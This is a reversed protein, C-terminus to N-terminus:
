YFFQYPLSRCAAAKPAPTILRVFCPLSAPSSFNSSRGRCNGRGAFLRPVRGWTEREKRSTPFRPSFSAYASDVPRCAFALARRSVKGLQRVGWFRAQIPWGGVAGQLKKCHGIRGFRSIKHRLNACKHQGSDSLLHQIQMEFESFSFASDM